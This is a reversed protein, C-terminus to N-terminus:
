TLSFSVYNFVCLFFLFLHKFHFPPLLSPTVPPHPTLLLPINHPHLIPPKTRWCLTNHKLVSLFLCFNLQSLCVFFFVISHCFSLIALFTSYTFSYSFIIVPFLHLSFLWVISSSTFISSSLSLSFFYLISVTSLSDVFFSVGICCLSVYWVFFDTFDCFLWLFDTM